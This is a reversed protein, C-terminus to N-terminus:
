AALAPELAEKARRRPIGLAAVAGVAVVAAGVWVAPTLGSVYDAGSRYSGYQTFV